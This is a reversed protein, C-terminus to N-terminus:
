GIVRWQPIKGHVGYRFADCDDDEIKKPQEKGTKAAKDDWSYNPIRKALEPCGRLSVKLKRRSLLTSVTHIGPTVENDADTV